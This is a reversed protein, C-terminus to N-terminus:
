IASRRPLDAPAVPWSILFGRVTDCRVDRLLRFQSEREVGDATVSLGIAHATDIFTEDIKVTTLPLSRFLVLSSFATGYDDMAIRNGAERLQRLQGIARPLDTIAAGQTIEVEILHAPVNHRQLADILEPM